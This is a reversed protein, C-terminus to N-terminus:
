GVLRGYPNRHRADDQGIRELADPAQRQCFAEFWGRFECELVIPFGRYEFAPLGERVLVALTRGLDEALEGAPYFEGLDSWRPFDSTRDELQTTFM